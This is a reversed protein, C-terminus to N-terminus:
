FLLRLRVYGWVIHWALYYALRFSYMTTFDYRKFMALEIINFAFIHVAIYAVVWTPYRGAYFTMQLIPELLAALILCPWIIVGFNADKSITTILMLLLALPLVHFLVQVAYDIVPYYLLSQPFLVNLDRSFVVKCDVLIMVLAMFIAISVAWVFRQASGPTWISFWGRALLISLFVGGGIALLIIIALPNLSGLFRQFQLRNFFFAIATLAIMGLSLGLFTILQLRETAILERFSMAHTM